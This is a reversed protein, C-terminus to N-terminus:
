SLKKDAKILLSGRYIRYFSSYTKVKKVRFIFSDLINSINSLIKRDISLGKFKGGKAYPSSLILDYTENVSDIMKNLISIDCSNDAEITVIIDEPKIIKILYNFGFKFAFGPGQNSSYGILVIDHYTKLKQIVNKIDDTSGDNVIIIKFKKNKLKNAINRTLIPLNQADNYSPALIYIM